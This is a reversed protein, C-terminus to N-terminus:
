ATVVVKVTGSPHVACVGEFEGPSSFQQTVTERPGVFFPGILYSRDDDNVLEIVQGVKAEIVAPVLEIEEGADLRVGTGAPISYSIDAPADVAKTALDTSSGSGQGCGVLVAAGLALSM